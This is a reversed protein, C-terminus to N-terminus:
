PEVSDNEVTTKMREVADDEPPDDSSIEVSSEPPKGTAAHFVTERNVEERAKAYSGMCCYCLMALLFYADLSAVGIRQSVGAENIATFVLPPIWSLCQGAFLFVGMLEADQGEPIIASAVLRDCTWKWGTGVGWAFALLYTELHQDPGTLFIAFLATAIILVVLAAM